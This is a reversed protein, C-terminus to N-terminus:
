KEVLALSRYQRKIWAALTVHMQHATSQRNVTPADNCTIRDQQFVFAPDLQVLADFGLHQHEIQFRLGQTSACHASALKTTRSLKQGSDRGRPCATPLCPSLSPGRNFM